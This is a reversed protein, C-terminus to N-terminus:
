LSILYSSWSCKETGFWLIFEGEEEKRLTTFIVMLFLQWHPEFPQYYINGWKNSFEKATCLFL